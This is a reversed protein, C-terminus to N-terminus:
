SRNVDEVRDDMSSMASDIVKRTQALRNELLLRTNDSSAMNDTALSNISSMIKGELEMLRTVTSAMKSARELQMINPDTAAVSASDQIVIPQPSTSTEAIKGLAAAVSEIGDERRRKRSSTQAPPISPRNADIENLGAEIQANPPISRVVADLSPHNHFVCHMYSLSDDGNTYNPFTDPDGQGSRTYKECAITYTSRLKAWRQKLTTGNRKHPHLEPDFQLLLDETIGCVAEPIDPHFTDDNFLELFEHAFPDHRGADLESRTEVRQYMRAVITSHRADAIVHFLRATEHKTWNPARGRDVGARCTRTQAQSDVTKHDEWMCSLEIIRSCDTVGAKKLRDTLVSKAGSGSLGIRRLAASLIAQTLKRPQRSSVRETDSSTGSIVVAGREIPITMSPLAETPHEPPPETTLPTGSTPLSLRANTPHSGNSLEASPLDNNSPTNTM